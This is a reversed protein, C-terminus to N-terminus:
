DMLKWWCMRRRWFGCFQSCVERKRSAPCERHAHLQRLDGRHGLESHRVTGFGEPLHCANFLIDRLYHLHLNDCWFLHRRSPNNRWFVPQPTSQVFSMCTNKPVLTSGLLLVFCRDKIDSTGSWLDMTPLGSSPVGYQFVKTLGFDKLLHRWSEVDCDSVVELIAYEM